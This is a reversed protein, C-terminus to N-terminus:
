FKLCQPVLRWDSVGTICKDLFVSLRDLQAFTLDCFQQSPACNLSDIYNRVDMRKLKVCIERFEGVTFMPNRVELSKFFRKAASGGGFYARHLADMQDKADQNGAFISTGLQKWNHVGVGHDMDLFTSIKEIHKYRLDSITLETFMHPSSRFINGHQQAGFSNNNTPVVVNFITNLLDNRGMAVLNLKVMAITVEADCRQQWLRIMKVCKESVRQEEVDVGEIVAENFYETNRAFRKWDIGLRGSLENIYHQTLPSDDAQTLLEIGSLM